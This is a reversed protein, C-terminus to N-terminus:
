SSILEGLIGGAILIDFLVEGYKRFEDKKSAKEELFKSLAELRSKTVVSSSSVSASGNVTVVSSDNSEVTQKHEPSSPLVPSSTISESDPSTQDSNIYGVSNSSVSSHNSSSNKLTSGTGIGNKNSSDPSSSQIIENIGTLITDRFGNPDHKEKEDRKRTKIRQGSLTPREVRSNVSSM